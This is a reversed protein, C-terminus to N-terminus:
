LDVRAEGRPALATWWGGGSPLRVAGGLGLRGAVAAVARVVSLAPRAVAPAVATTMESAWVGDVVVGAAGTLHPAYLGRRSVRATATVAARTGDALTLADGVAVSAAAVLAPSGGAADRRVVPLYHGPSLTIAAGAATTLTVFPHVGAADAHSWFYVRGTTTPSTRLTDGMAVADMRLTRGDATQVTADAPFCVGEDDAAPSTTVGPTPEAPSAVRIPLLVGSILHIIGNSAQIDTQQLMPDAVSPAADILTANDDALAVRTGNLLSNYGRAALLAASGIQQNAVHYQLISTLLPLASGNTDLGALADVIAAYADTENNGDYGLTQALSVFAANTPAFVTLTASPDAVVPVLGTANLAQVLLTLNANGSAVQAITGQAAAPAAVSAAAAALGVLGAVAAPVRFRGM